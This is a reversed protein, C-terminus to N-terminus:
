SRSNSQLPFASQPVPECSRLITYPIRKRKMGIEGITDVKYITRVLPDKALSVGNRMRHGEDNLDNSLSQCVFTQLQCKDVNRRM